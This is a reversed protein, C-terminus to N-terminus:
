VQLSLLTCEDGDNTFNYEVFMGLKKLLGISASNTTQAFGGVKVYKETSIVADLYAKSAEFAYGKKEFEPLLAFGIDPFNLFDRQMFSVMGIPSGSKKLRIVMFYSDPKAHINQIYTVADDENRVGRDGIFKLWGETNLLQLIFAKDNVGVYELVLRETEVKNKMLYYSNCPFM